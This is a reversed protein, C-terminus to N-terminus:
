HCGRVPVERRNVAPVRLENQSATEIQGRLPDFREELVGPDQGPLRRSAARRLARFLQEFHM